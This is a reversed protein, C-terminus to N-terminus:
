CHLNGDTLSTKLRTLNTEIARYTDTQLCDAWLHPPIKCLRRAQQRTVPVVEWPSLAETACPKWPIWRLQNTSENALTVTGVPIASQFQWFQLM